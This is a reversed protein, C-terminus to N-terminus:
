PRWSTGEAGERRVLSLRLMVRGLDGNFAFGWARVVYLMAIFGLV